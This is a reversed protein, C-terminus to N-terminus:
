ISMPSIRLRLGGKPRLTIGPEPEIVNRRTTHFDFTRVLLALVVQMEMLAFNNGICLRPGGGFPIYSYAPREKLREPLFNDPNFQDPNTWHKPDRHLLYPCILVGFNAPLVYEGLPEDIVPKRGFLWAPPYLRMTEQIVQLTYSLARVTEATPIGESGIVRHVEERVKSAVEPHKALLYLSWALANATTEHGAMFITTVEDRLQKDTMQDGTEEDRAEMLMELLDDYRVHNGSAKEARRQNIIDYIIGEVKEVARRYRINRPTPYHTPIHVFSHLEAYAFEIITTIEKSINGLHKKVDSSFLSRTVIELTLKMMEESIDVPLATTHQKWREVLEQTEQVMTDVLLALRQRHFAPQALRRQRRWFDGESNLLGNGLFLSLVKYADSKVFNKNNEQLIHKADEPTLTLTVLRNAITFRVLRDYQQQLRSLFALPDRIFQFTNGVLPAGKVQPILRQTQQVTAM